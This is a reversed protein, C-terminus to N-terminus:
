IKICSSSASLNPMELCATLLHSLTSAEGSVSLRIARALKYPTENSSNILPLFSLTISVISGSCSTLSSGLSFLSQAYAHLLSVVFSCCSFTTSEFPLSILRSFSFWEAFPIKYGIKASENVIM